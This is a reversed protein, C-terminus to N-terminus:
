AATTGQFFYTQEPLCLIEDAKHLFFLFSSFIYVYCCKGDSLFYTQTKNLSVSTGAYEHSLYM